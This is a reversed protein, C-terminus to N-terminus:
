FFRYFCLSLALSNGVRVHTLDYVVVNLHPQKDFQRDVINEIKDENCKAVHAKFQTVIYNSVLGEPKIIRGIRRHSVQQETKSLEQKIKRTM